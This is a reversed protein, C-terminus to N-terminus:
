DRGDILDADSFHVFMTIVFLFDLETLSKMLLKDQALTFLVLVISSPFHRIILLLNFSVLVLMSLWSSMAKM